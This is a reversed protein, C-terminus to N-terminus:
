RYDDDLIALTRQPNIYRLQASRINENHINGKELQQASIRVTKARPCDMVVQNDTANLQCPAEVVQGYFHIVGAQVQEAMAPSFLTLLVCLAAVLACQYKKM